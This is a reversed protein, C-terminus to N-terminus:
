SVPQSQVVQMKNQLEALKQQADVLLKSLADVSRQAKAVEDQSANNKQRRSLEVVAATKQAMLGDCTKMQAIIETQLGVVDNTDARMSLCGLILTLALLRAYLKM